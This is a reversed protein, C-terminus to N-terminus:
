ARRILSTYKFRGLFYRFRKDFIYYIVISIITNVIILIIAEKVFSLWGYEPFCVLKSICFMLIFSIAIKVFQHKIGISRYFVKDRILRINFPMAIMYMSIVTGILIGLVGYRNVLLISLVINVGAQYVTFIKSERYLGKSDRAAIIAPMIMRNLIIFSFLLVTIEKVVFMSGIWLVIFKNSMIYFIPIVISALFSSVSLLESFVFFTNGDDGQIKLALSSKLGGIIKNIFQIPFNILTNFASYITVESLTRFISLIFNDTSYFVIGSLQHIFIDKTMEKPSMDVSTNPFKKFNILKEVVLNYVVTSFIIFIVGGLLVVFLPPKLLKILIYEFSFTIISVVLQILDDLYQKEFASILGRQPLTLFYPSIYRLLMAILIFMSNLYTINVKNVLAPYLVIFFLSIILMKFGVQKMNYKLGVYLNVLKQMDNNRINSYIKFQYAATMGSELLILYTSLQVAVQMIGNQETGYYNIILPIRLFTILAIIITSLSSIITIKIGINTRIM